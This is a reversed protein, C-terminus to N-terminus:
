SELPMVVNVTTGKGPISDLDAQGGVLRAREDINLLGFSGRQDYSAMVKAKDFGVGDDRILARLNKGDRKLQIWIHKARAHKLANNVSEQIINFLTGEAKTDLHVADINHTELLIETGADNNKFRELYQELTVKLGQTELVLPRLEFLMTRVEYTTRKALASLKDLEPMIRQPERDLLRKIFELNMTISAMAQAPGDHLDRALQKRVEEEKSILKNREEKLDFVLQANQLSTIAYSALATLMALQERTFARPNVSSVVMLGYARLGMRLPILLSSRCDRLSVLTQIVPDRSVDDVMQADGGRAAQGLISRSVDLARGMETGDGGESAAVFLEDQKGASLLVLGVSYPVLKHSERLTSELVHKYDMTTALSFAVEYLSRMQDRYSQAERLAGETQENAVAVSRRNDMTWREALLSTVWPISTLTLVRLGLSVYDLDLMPLIDMGLRRRIFMAGVYFLSATFGSALSLMPSQRLAANILPLLYLPFFVVFIEGHLFVLVSFFALDITYSMALMPSLFPIFLAISALLAFAAYIGIVYIIPDPDFNIPWLPLDRLPGSIILLLAVVLWRALNYFRDGALMYWRDQATPTAEMTTNTAEMM